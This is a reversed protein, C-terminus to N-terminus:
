HYTSIHIHYGGGVMKGLPLMNLLSGHIVITKKTEEIPESDGSTQITLSFPKLAQMQDHYKIM